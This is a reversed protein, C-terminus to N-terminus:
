QQFGEFTGNVTEYGAANRRDRADLVLITQGTMVTKSKMKGRLIVTSCSEGEGCPMEFSISFKKGSQRWVGEIVSGDDSTATLQQLPLPSPPFDNVSARITYIKVGFHYGSDSDPATITIVWVGKWLKGKGANVPVAAGLMLLVAIVASARGYWSKHKFQM